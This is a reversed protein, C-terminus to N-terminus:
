VGFKERTEENVKRRLKELEKDREAQDLKEFKRSKMLKGAEKLYLDGFYKLAKDREEGSLKTMINSSAGPKALPSRRGFEELISQKSRNSHTSSSIGVWDAVIAASAEEAPTTGDVAYTIANDIFIPLLVGRLAANLSQPNGVIDTPMHTDDFLAWLQQGATRAGSVLPSQRYMLFRALPDWPDKGYGKNVMNKIIRATTTIISAVGFTLDFRTDGWVVKGFDGTLDFTYSVWEEFFNKDEDENLIANALGALAGMIVVQGIAARGRMRNRQNFYKGEGKGAIAAPAYIINAATAVRSATWRFALVWLSVKDMLAPTLIKPDEPTWRGTAKNVELGVKQKKLTNMDGGNADMLSNVAYFRGLSVALEMANESASYLRLPRAVVEAAKKGIVKGLKNEGSQLDPSALSSGIFQEEVIGLPVGLQQFTGNLYNPHSLIQAWAYDQPTNGYADPKNGTLLERWFSKVGTWWSKGAAKPSVYFLNSLQRLFGIDASLIVTRTTGLFKKTKAKRPNYKAYQKEFIEQYFKRFRNVYLGLTLSEKMAANNALAESLEKQSMDKWNKIGFAEMRADTTKLDLYNKGGVLTNNLRELQADIAQEYEALTKADESSVAFGLSEQVVNELYLAEDAPSLRGQMRRVRNIVVNQIQPASLDTEAKLKQELVPALIKESWMDNVMKAHDAGLYKELFAIRDEAKMNLMLDKVTYGSAKINSFLEDLTSPLICDAAM